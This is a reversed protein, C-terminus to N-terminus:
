DLVKREAAEHADRGVRPVSQNEQMTSDAAYFAECAEAFENREVM